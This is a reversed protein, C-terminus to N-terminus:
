WGASEEPRISPFKLRPVKVRSGPNRFFVLVEYFCVVCRRCKTNRTQMRRDSSLAEIENEFPSLLAVNGLGHRGGVVCGEWAVKNMM